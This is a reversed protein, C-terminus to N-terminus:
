VVISFVAELQDPLADLKVVKTTPKLPEYLTVSSGSLKLVIYAHNGIMATADDRTAALTARTGAQACVDHLDKSKIPGDDTKGRFKRKTLFHLMTYDVKGLLEGICTAVSVGSSMGIKDYGGHATAYALEIISPWLLNSPSDMFIPSWDRDSDDAYMVDSLTITKSGPFAVDFYRDAPITRSPGPTQDVYDRGTTVIAGSQEKVLSTLRARGKPTNAMAGLLGALYCNGIGQQRIDTVAPTGNKAFLRRDKFRKPIKNASSWKEEPPPLTNSRAAAQKAAVVPGPAAFVTPVFAM